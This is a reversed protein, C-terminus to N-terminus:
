RRIALILTKDDDTRENVKESDLFKALGSSLSVDRGEASSAQLPRIITEFFRQHPLHDNLELALTEMGDSFLALASIPDTFRSFKILPEPEDTLFFTTSAYEGHSPWSAVLWEDADTPKFVIAGDGIHAVLTESGTSIVFVITSAFERPKIERKAAALFIRRRADLMWERVLEDTPLERAVTMRQADPSQQADPLEEAYSATQPYDNAVLSEDDDPSERTGPLERIDPLQHPDPVQQADWEPSFEQTKAFFAKAHSAITRCAVSAGEGGMSASGAGDSVVAIFTDREAGISTCTFADQRRTNSRVHSTGRCTAAAWTWSTKM